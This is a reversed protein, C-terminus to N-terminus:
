EEDENAAGSEEVVTDSIAKPEKVKSYAWKGLKVVVYIATGVGLLTFGGTVITGAGIKKVSEEVAETVVEEVVVNTLEDM